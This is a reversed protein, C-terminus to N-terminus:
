AGYPPNSKRRFRAFKNGAAPVIETMNGADKEESQWFISKRV